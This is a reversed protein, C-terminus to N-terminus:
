VNSAIKINKPEQTVVVEEPNEAVAVDMVGLSVPEQTATDEKQAGQM